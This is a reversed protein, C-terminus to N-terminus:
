IVVIENSSNMLKEYGNETILFSEGWFISTQLKPTIISPHIIVVMGPLLPRMNSEDIREENLDIACIHGCPLSFVYGSKETFQRIRKAINGIPNGPKLECLADDITELIVKHMTRFDETPEGISLTRVLQTWYGNYRPTIEMAVNDGPEIVKDFMTAAHICPLKNDDFSFRGSSILTFNYEGGKRQIAYELEAVVQQETMGPKITRKVAEYGEDALRACKRITEVEEESHVNRIEFLPETVDVWEIQPFREELRLLWSTPLLELCTGVKGSKIGMEEFIACIGEVADSFIRCDKIFSNNIFELQSIFSTAIAVPEKDPAFVATLLYYYVRNDTLYRFCGYSNTGVAGNGVMLLGSLGEKKMMEDAAKFRRNREIVSFM